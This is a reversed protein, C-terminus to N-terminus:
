NFYSPECLIISDFSEHPNRVGNWGYGVIASNNETRRQRETTDLADYFVLCNTHCATLSITLWYLLTSKRTRALYWEIAQSQPPEQLREHLDGAPRRVAPVAMALGGAGSFSSPVVKPGWTGNLNEAQLRELGHTNPALEDKLLQAMWCGVHELQTYSMKLIEQLM